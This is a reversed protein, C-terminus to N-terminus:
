KFRNNKVHLKVPIDLGGVVGCRTARQAPLSFHLIHREYFEDRRM